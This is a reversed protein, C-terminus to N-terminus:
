VTATPTGLDAKGLAFVLDGRKCEFGIACDGIERLGITFSVNPPLPAMFKVYPVGSVVVGGKWRRIAELVMELIIVAPVVPNGPFHGRLYPESGPVRRREEYSM